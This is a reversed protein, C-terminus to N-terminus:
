SVSVLIQEQDQYPDSKRKVNEERSTQLIKQKDKFSPIEVMIHTATPREEDTTRPSSTLGRGDLIEPDPVSELIIKDALKRGKAKM